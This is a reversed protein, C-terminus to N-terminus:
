GVNRLILFGATVIITAGVLRQTLREEHFLRGGFLAALLISTRKVALVLAAPASATAVLQLYRYAITFGAVLLILLFVSRAKGVVIGFREHRWALMGAYMACYIAHQYVLVLAPSVQMGAVLKRDLVSSIGFLLLAGVIPYHSRERWPAGLIERISHGPRYELVYTGVVMLFIGAMEWGRLVEGLLPFALVATVAPTLGLLPLANSIPNTELAIMVLLFALGSLVSKVAIVGLAAASVETFSIWFATTASCLAVVVSVAFSFQLASMSFLIKKQAVAACASCVASLFAVGFWTM